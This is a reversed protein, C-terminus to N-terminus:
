LGNAIADRGEDTITFKFRARGPKADTEDVHILGHNGLERTYAAASQRSINLHKALDHNTTEGRAIFRLADILRLRKQLMNTIPKSKEPCRAVFTTKQVGGMAEIMADRLYEERKQGIARAAFTIGCEELQPHIHM